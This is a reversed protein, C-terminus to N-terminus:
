LLLVAVGLLATAAGGCRVAVVFRRTSADMLEAFGLLVMQGASILSLGPMMDVDSFAPIVLTAILLAGFGVVSFRAGRTLRPPGVVEERLTRPFASGNQVTTRDQM